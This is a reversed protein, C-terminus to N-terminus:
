GPNLGLDGVNCSSEKDDSGGPFGLFVPTPLRDRRWLMKRVWSNFQPSGQQSLHYLIERCHLLCPNSGQTPFIGQLFSIVVWQLIRAQLIEHLSSGPPSCDMSNCLTPCSQAVKLESACYLHWTKYYFIICNGFTYCM